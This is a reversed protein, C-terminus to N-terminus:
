IDVWHFRLFVLTQFDVVIKKLSFLNTVGGLFFTLFVLTEHGFRAKKILLQVTHFIGFLRISFM